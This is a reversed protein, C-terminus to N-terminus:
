LIKESHDFYSDQHLLICQVIFVSLLVVNDLFIRLCNFPHLYLFLVHPTFLTRSILRYHFTQIEIQVSAQKRLYEIPELSSFSSSILSSFFFSSSTGFDAGDCSAIASTLQSIRLNVFMVHICCDSQAFAQNLM